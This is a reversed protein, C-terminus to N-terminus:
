LLLKHKCPSNGLAQLMCANMDAADTRFDSELVTEIDEVKHLGLKLYDMLKKADGSKYFARIINRSHM